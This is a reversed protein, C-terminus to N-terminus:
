AADKTAYRALIEYAWEVLDAPRQGAPQSIVWLELNEPRNDGRVGNKHHVNEGPRLPRGLTEAMVKKHEAIVGRKNANPHDWYGNLMVYGDPRVFRRSPGPSTRRHLNACSHCRKSTKHCPVGCDACVSKKADRIRKNYIRSCPRCRSRRQDFAEEPLMEKCETCLVLNGVRPRNPSGVRSRPPADVQVDGHRRWRNYHLNCWGRTRLPLECGDLSCTGPSRPM